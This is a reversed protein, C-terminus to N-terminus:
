LRQTKKKFFTTPHEEIPSTTPTIHCNDKAIVGNKYHELPEYEKKLEKALRSGQSGKKNRPIIVQNQVTTIRGSYNWLEINYLNAMHLSAETTGNFVKFICAVKDAMLSKAILNINKLENETTNASNSVKFLYLSGNKQATYYLNYPENPVPARKINTFGYGKLFFEIRFNPNTRLVSSSSKSSTTASGASICFIIYFFVITFIFEVM